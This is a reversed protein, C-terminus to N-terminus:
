NAQEYAAVTRWRAVLRSYGDGALAGDGSSLGLLSNAVDEISQDSAIGELGESRLAKDLFVALGGYDCEVISHSDFVSLWKLLEVLEQEVPGEGFARKVIEHTAILRKKAQTITTRLISFAQGDIFGRLRETPEFLAFWRPPIMWTTSIVHPTRSEPVFDIEVESAEPIFFHLVSSPLSNKFEEIASRCRQTTSWPCVYRAGDKVIVHAGDQHLTRARPLVLRHLSKKQEEVKTWSDIKIAEWRARDEQGFTDLPEYVRLWAVYPTPNV